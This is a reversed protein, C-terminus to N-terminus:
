RMGAEEIIMTYHTHHYEPVDTKTKSKAGDMARMSRASTLRKPHHHLSQTHIEHHGRSVLLYNSCSTTYALLLMLLAM